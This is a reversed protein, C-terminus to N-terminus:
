REEDVLCLLSTARKKPLDLLLDAALSEQPFAEAGMEVMKYEAGHSFEIFRFEVVPAFLHM